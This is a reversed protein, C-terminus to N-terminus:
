AAKQRSLYRVIRRTLRLWYKKFGLLILLVLGLIWLRNFRFEELQTVPAVIPPEPEPVSQLLVRVEDASMTEAELLANALADLKHRNQQMIQRARRYCQDMIQKVETDIEKAMKSSCDYGITSRRYVALGVNDSMSYDCIMKRALETAKAFDDQAGTTTQDFVLEEAARGGCCMTIQALLERKTSGHREREPLSYTAGLASGRPTITIKHLPDLDSALELNILAHGAEHFAIMQRETDSLNITKSESGMIIKDRAQEFDEMEIVLKDKKTALLVAENVLNALEAGSFGFTGCAIKKIDVAENAEVKQLYLELIEIRSKLDPYPVHVIRDFRGPRLLAKDLMDIRNTAGIVIIPKQNKEFGDMCTLLQNLTQTHELSGGEGHMNRKGGITDIEDIFIIAPANKQAQGFLERVKAAGTGIFVNIFEAGSISYFACNAEGAVARALLTKGNGPEGQMLVGKPVKAGLRSYKTPDKLYDVIDKLDSKAEHAGAVSSFREEVNKVYSISSPVGNAVKMTMYISSLGAGILVLDLILGMCFTQTSTSLILFFLVLSKYNRM